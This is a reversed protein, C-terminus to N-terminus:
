YEGNGHLSIYIKRKMVEELTINSNLYNINPCQSPKNRLTHTVAANCNSCMVM